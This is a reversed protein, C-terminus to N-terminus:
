AILVRDRGAEKAEYLAADARTLAGRTDELGAVASVGASFTIRGFSKGNDRNVMQRSSLDIRIQDLRNSADEADLGPFLVM